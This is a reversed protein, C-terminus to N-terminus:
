NLHVKKNELAYLINNKHNHNPAANALRSYLDIASAERKIGALIAEFVQEFYEQHNRLTYGLHYIPTNVNAYYPYSYTKPVYYM